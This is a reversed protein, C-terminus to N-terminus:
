AAGTRLTKAKGVEVGVCLLRKQKLLKERVDSALGRSKSRIQSQGYRTAYAHTFEAGFLFIQASYYVWVLALM